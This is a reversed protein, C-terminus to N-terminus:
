IRRCLWRLKAVSRDKHKDLAAKRSFGRSCHSCSYPKETEHHLMHAILGEKKEYKHDCIRCSFLDKRIKEKETELSVDYSTKAHMNIHSQLHSKLKFSKKCISCHHSRESSHTRQHAKLNNMKTFTKFCVSCAHQKVGCHLLSHSKLSSKTKLSKGCVSCEFLINKTHNAIHLEYRGKQKFNKSCVTCTLSEKNVVEDKGKKNNNDKFSFSSPTHDLEHSRLLSDDPFDIGCFSCQYPRLGAHTLLHTKLDLKRPFSKTCLCCSYSIERQTKCVVGDASAQQNGIHRGQSHLLVHDEIENPELTKNCANCTKPRDGLHDQLHIKLNAKKSFEGECLTCQYPKIDHHGLMHKQFQSAFLFRKGCLLCKVPKDGTHTKVHVKLLGKQPFTKSCINCQYPRDGTHSKMHLKLSNSVTYGKGCLICTYPKVKSHTALHNRRHVSQTFRKGCIDCQYPKESSESENVSHWVLHDELGKYGTFDLGCLTCKFVDTCVDVTSKNNRVNDISTSNKQNHIKVHAELHRRETFSKECARCSFSINHKHVLVHKNLSSERIFVKGCWTCSFPMNNSHSKIHYKLSGRQSFCKGCVDCIYPKEKTHVVMHNNLYSQLAFTKNCIECKLPKEGSHILLHSKLNCKVTFSKGCINCTNPNDSENVTDLPSTNNNAALIERKEPLEEHVNTSHQVEFQLSDSSLGEQGNCEISIIDRLDKVYYQHIDTHKLIHEELDSKTVFIDECLLCKHFNSIKHMRVSTRQSDNQYFYIECLDSDMTEEQFSGDVLYIQEESSTESVSNHSVSISAYGVNMDIADAASSDIQELAESSFEKKYDLIDSSDLDKNLLSIEEFDHNIESIHATCVDEDKLDTNVVADQVYQLGDETKVVTLTDQNLNTHSSLHSPLKEKDPFEEACEIGKYELSLMGHVASIDHRKMHYNLSGKQTFSNNCIHCKFPKEKTHTRLHVKLNSKLSFGRDCYNCTFPREGTHTLMHTKLTSSASFSCCCLQCSFQRKSHINMHKILSKELEYAKDCLKCSFQRQHILQHKKFHGKTSFSKDCESCSYKNFTHLDKVKSENINDASLQQMSFEAYPHNLRVHVRLESQINYDKDCTLCKYLPESNSNQM